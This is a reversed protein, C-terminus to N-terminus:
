PRGGTTEALLRLAARAAARRTPFARGPLDPHVYFFEGVAQRQRHGLRGSSAHDARQEPTFRQFHRVVRRAEAALRLADEDLTLTTTKRV